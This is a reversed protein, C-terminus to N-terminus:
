VRSADDDGGRMLWKSAHRTTTTMCADDHGGGKSSTSGIYFQVSRRVQVGFLKGRAGVMAASQAPNEGAALCHGVDLTLGM